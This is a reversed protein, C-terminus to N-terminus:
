NSPSPSTAPAAAPAAAPTAAPATAPANKSFSRIYVILNWVEDDKARGAEEAPMKGKGNRITKFLDTDQMAALSKPDTWDVLSLQMSSAIDTKGDGSAGHCLACDIAYLKKAKAQSDATVKTKTAADQGRTIPSTSLAIAFVAVASVLLAPKLM